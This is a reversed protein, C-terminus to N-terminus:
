YIPKRAGTSLKELCELSYTSGIKKGNDCHHIAWYLDVKSIEKSEYESIKKELNEIDRKADKWNGFARKVDWESEFNEFSFTKVKELRAKRNAVSEKLSNIVINKDFNLKKFEEISKAISKAVLNGNEIFVNENIETCGNFEDRAERTKDGEIDYWFNYCFNENKFYDPRFCIYKEGCAIAKTVPVNIGNEAKFDYGLFRTGDDTFDYKENRVLNLKSESFNKM